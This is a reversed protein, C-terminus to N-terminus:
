QRAPKAQSWCSRRHVCRQFSLCFQAEAGTTVQGM